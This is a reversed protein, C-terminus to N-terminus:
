KDFPTTADIQNFITTGASSSTSQTVSVGTVSYLKGASGGVDAIPVTIRNDGACDRYLQRGYCPDKM